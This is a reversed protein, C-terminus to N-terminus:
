ESNGGLVDKIKFIEVQESNIHNAVCGHQSSKYEVRGVYYEGEGPYEKVEEKFREIAHTDSIFWGFWEGGEPMGREYCVYFNVKIM